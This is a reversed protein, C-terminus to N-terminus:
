QKRRRLAAFGALGLGLLAVSSPEPVQGGFQAQVDFNQTANNVNIFINNADFTVLSSNIGNAVVGTIGLDLGAIVYYVDNIYTAGNTFFIGTDSFTAVSFNFYIPGLVTGDAIVASASGYTTGGPGPYNVKYTIDNGIFGAQASSGAFLAACMFLSSVMKKYFRM